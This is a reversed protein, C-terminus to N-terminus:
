GLIPGSCISHIFFTVSLNKIEFSSIYFFIELVIFYYSFTELTNFDNNIIPPLPSTPVDSM